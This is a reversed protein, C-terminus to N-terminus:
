IIKLATLKLKKLIALQPSIESVVIKLSRSGVFLNRFRSYRVVSKSTRKNEVTKQKVESVDCFCFFLLGAFVASEDPIIKGSLMM